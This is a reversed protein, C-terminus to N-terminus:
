FEFSFKLKSIAECTLCYNGDVSMNVLGRGQLITLWRSALNDSINLAHAVGAVDSTSGGASVALFLLIDWAPDAFLDRGFLQRRRERFRWVTAIWESLGKESEFDLPGVMQAGRFVAMGEGWNSIFRDPFSPGACSSLQNLLGNAVYSLSQAIIRM